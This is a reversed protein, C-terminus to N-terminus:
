RHRIEDAVTTSLQQDDARRRHIVFARISDLGWIEFM